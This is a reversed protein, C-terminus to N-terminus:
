FRITASFRVRRPSQYGTIRGFNPNADATGDEDALENVETVADADFVNFIDARLTLNANGFTLPYQTTLDLKYVDDTTGFSGRPVLTGQQYFSESGYAAAFADTPHEGFGNKPRGSRYSVNAGFSLNNDLAYAGFIKLNHRRDNPLNGHAGDLLGPQDFLTTIGADDQGNDSRVWGEYNGYSHSWTYSGQLM